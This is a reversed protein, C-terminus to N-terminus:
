KIVGSTYVVVGHCAALPAVTAGYAGVLDWAAHTAGDYVSHFCKLPRGLLCVLQHVHLISDVIQDCRKTDKQNRTTQHLTQAHSGIFNLRRVVGTSM